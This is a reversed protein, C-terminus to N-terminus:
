GGRHAPIELNIEQVRVSICGLAKETFWITACEKDVPQPQCRAVGPIDDLALVSDFDGVPISSM